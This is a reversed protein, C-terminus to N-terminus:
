TASGGVLLSNHCFHGMQERLLEQLKSLAFTARITATPQIIVGLPLYRHNIASCYM